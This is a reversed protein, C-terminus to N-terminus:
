GVLQVNKRVLDRGGRDGPRLPEHDITRTAPTPPGVFEVVVRTSQEPLKGDDDGADGRWGMRAQEWWKIMASNGKKILKIHEVLVMTNISSAGNDLEARYHKRLTKLDIGKARAIDAQKIGGAVMVTIMDRDVKTPQHPPKGRGRKAPLSVDPGPLDKPM